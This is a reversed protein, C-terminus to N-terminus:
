TGRTAVVAWVPPGRVYARHTIGVSSITPSTSPLHHRTTTGVAVTPHNTSSMARAGTRPEVEGCDRRQERDGVQGYSSEHELGNPEQPMSDDAVIRGATSRDRRSPM